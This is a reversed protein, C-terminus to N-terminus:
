FITNLLRLGVPLQGQYFYGKVEFFKCRVSSDLSFCCEYSTCLQLGIIPTASLQRAEHSMQKRTVRGLGRATVRPGLSQSPSPAHHLNSEPEVRIFM